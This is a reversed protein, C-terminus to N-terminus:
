CPQNGSTNGRYTTAKQLEAAVSPTKVELPSLGRTAFVFQCCPCEPIHNRAQVIKNQIGSQAALDERKIARELDRELQNLERVLQGVRKDQCCLSLPVCTIFADSGEIVLGRRILHERLVRLTGNRLGRREGPALRDSRCFTIVEQHVVVGDRKTQPNTKCRFYATIHITIHVPPRSAQRPIAIEGSTGGVQM